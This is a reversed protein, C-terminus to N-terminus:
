RRIGGSLLVSKKTTTATQIPAVPKAPQKKYSEEILRNVVAESGREWSIGDALGSSQELSFGCNRLEIVRCM